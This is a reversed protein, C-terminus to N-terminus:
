GPIGARANHLLTEVAAAEGALIVQLPSEDDLERLRRNLWMRVAERSGLAAAALELVRAVPTLPEQGRPAAAPMGAAGERADM